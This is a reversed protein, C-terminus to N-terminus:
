KRRSLLSREQRFASACAVVLAVAWSTLFFWGMGMLLSYVLESNAFTAVAVRAGNRLTDM